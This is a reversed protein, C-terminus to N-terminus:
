EGPEKLINANQAVALALHGRLYADAIKWAAALVTAGVSVALQAQDNSILGFAVLQAVIWGVAATIQVPTIDPMNGSIM